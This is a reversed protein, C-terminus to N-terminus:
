MSSSGACDNGMMSVATSGYQSSGGSAGAPSAAAAAADCATGFIFDSILTVKHMYPQM